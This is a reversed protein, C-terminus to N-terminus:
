GENSDREPQRVDSKGRESFKKGVYMGGSATFLGLLVEAGNGSSNALVSIFSALVCFVFAWFSLFRPLSLCGDSDYWTSKIDTFIKMKSTGTDTKYHKYVM